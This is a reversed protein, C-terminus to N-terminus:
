PRQAGSSFEQHFQEVAVAEHRPQRRLAPLRPVVAGDDELICREVQEPTPELRALHDDIPFPRPFEGRGDTRVGERLELLHEVGGAQERMAHEAAEVQRGVRRTRAPHAPIRDLAQLRFANARDPLPVCSPIWKSESQTPWQWIAISAFILATSSTKSVWTSTRASSSCRAPIRRFSRGASTVRVFAFRPPRVTFGVTLSVFSSASITASM